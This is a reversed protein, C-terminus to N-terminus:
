GTHGHPEPLDCGPSGCKNRGYWKERARVAKDYAALCDVLYDALLFDPTDSGNERSEANIIHELKNRFGEASM